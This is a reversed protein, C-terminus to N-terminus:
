ADPAPFGRQVASSLAPVRHRAGAPMSEPQILVIGDALDRVEVPHEVQEVLAEAPWAADDLVSTRAAADDAQDDGLNEGGSDVAHNRGGCM